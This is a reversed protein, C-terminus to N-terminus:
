NNDCLLIYNIWDNFTEQETRYSCVSNHMVKLLPYQKTISLIESAFQEADFGCDPHFELWKAGNKVRKSNIYNICYICERCNDSLVAIQYDRKNRVIVNDDSLKNLPFKSSNFLPELQNRTCRLDAIYKSSEVLFEKYSAKANDIHDQLYQKCHEALFDFLNIWSDSDLKSVDSTRVGILRFSKEQSDEEARKRIRKAINYVRELEYDDYDIKYNKIPIYVLKGNVSGEIKEDNEQLTAIDDKVSKWYDINRYGNGDQRMEFLPIHARSGNSKRVGSYDPKEKVVKSTYRIYKDSIKDFHWENDIVAQADDTLANIFYVVQLNEDENFLTRARLNNGHSSSIDQIVFLGDDRCNIRTTKGSRVRFGNRADSDSERTTETLILTDTMGYPRSFGFADIKIGQWEFSGEFARQLTQPLSNIIRAYNAKAEYLDKSDSLKESAIAKVERMVEVMRQVIFKQTPKNYELAERSHHLKVCGLPVRLHFNSEELVSEIVKIQRDDQVYNKVNISSADLPYAVRGMIVKAKEYSRAYYNYSSEQETFFWDGDKGELIVKPKVILNDIGKFKPMDKDSFFKFFKKCNDRFSEIDSESIAVQVELGTPENTPEEHLKVIKTDDHEDVFINYSSKVGGHYSVCTFNDGYSLPAFKGIGFAGIYNNSTRKTSKGYKSYLGFVDEQSLGGGFDRVCFNTNLKTPITIEIKRKSNAETNADLANASIERIVALQTNSYNNRLLSAVYRMDEADITCNVSDFDHSTVVKKNKQEAIIM